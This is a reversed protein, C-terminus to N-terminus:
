NENRKKLNRTLQITIATLHPSNIFYWGPYSEDNSGDKYEREFIEKIDNDLDKAVVEWVKAYASDLNM